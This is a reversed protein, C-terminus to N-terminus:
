SPPRYAQCALARHLRRDGRWKMARLGKERYADPDTAISRWLERWRRYCPNLEALAAEVRGYRFLCADTLSVVLPNPHMRNEIDDRLLANVADHERGDGLQDAVLALAVAASRSKGHECHVAITPESVPGDFFIRGDVVNRGFEIANAVETMTPGVLHDFWAMGIDDFALRLLRVSEGRSAQKLALDLARESGHSTGRISIIADAGDAAGAEVEFSSLVRVKMQADPLDM